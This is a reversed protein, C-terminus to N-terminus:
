CLFAPEGRMVLFVDTGRQVRRPHTVLLRGYVTQVLVRAGEGRFASTVVTGPLGEDALALHEPRLALRGNGSAGRIGVTGLPTEVRGDNAVGELFRVPGTLRAVEASSPHGYVEEPTGVQGVRGGSPGAELVLVRDALALADERDHTVLLAARGENALTERLREGLEARRDADVNAFPEDLLLLAPEPALARALAVRQQQGGSLESPYRNELGSLGVQELLRAGRGDDHALGYAINAAVTMSGFLAYDQFVLGVRRREIPVRERGGEVVTTGGIGIRGSTPTVLGAISRLLTTKGCGSAGLVAVLEGEGVRLDLGELVPTAGYRHTVNEVILAEPM